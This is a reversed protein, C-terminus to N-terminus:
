SELFLGRFEIITHQVKTFRKIKFVIKYIYLATMLVFFCIFMDFNSFAIRYQRVSPGFSLHLVAELFFLLIKGCIQVGEM